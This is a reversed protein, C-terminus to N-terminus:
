TVSHIAGLTIIFNRDLSSHNPVGGAGSENAGGTQKREVHGQKKKGKVNCQKEGDSDSTSGACTNM